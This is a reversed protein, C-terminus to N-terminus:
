ATEEASKAPPGQKAMRCRFCLGDELMMSSVEKECSTCKVMAHPGAKVKEEECTRCFNGAQKHGKECTGIAEGARNEVPKPPQYKLSVDQTFFLFRKSPKESLYDRWTDLVTQSGYTKGLNMALEIESPTLSPPNDNYSKAIDRVAELYEGKKMVQKDGPPPKPPEESESKNDSSIDGEQSSTESSPSESTTTHRSPPPDHPSQELVEDETQWFDIIVYNNPLRVNGNWREQIEIYGKDKLNKLSTKLKTVGCGALKALKEQRVYGEGTDYDAVYCIGMYTSKEFADLDTSEIVKKRVMTFPARQRTVTINEM